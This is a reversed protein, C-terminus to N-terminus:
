PTFYGVFYAIASLLTKAWFVLWRSHSQKIKYNFSFPLCSSLDHRGLIDKNLENNANHIAFAL